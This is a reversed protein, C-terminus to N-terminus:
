RPGTPPAPAGFIERIGRDIGTFIDEFFGGVDDLVLDFDDAKESPPPPLRADPSLYEVTNGSKPSPPPKVEMPPPLPRPAPTVVTLEPASEAKPFSSCSWLGPRNNRAEREQAAYSYDGIKTVAFGNSIAIEGIDQGNVTGRGVLRGSEDAHVSLTAENGVVKRAFGDAVETGIDVSESNRLCTRGRKPARTGELHVSKGAVVIDSGSVAATVRGSISFPEREDRLVEESLVPSAALMIAITLFRGSKV